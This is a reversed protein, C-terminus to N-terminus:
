ARNLIFRERYEAFDREIQERALGFDALTYEHPPRDERANQALWRRMATEASASLREGLFAYIRQIEGIPDRGVDRYGVDLFAEPWKERSRLCRELAWAYRAEVQRGVEHRDVEDAALEWLAAYMSAASAVTEIPDRHTQIVRAGPFVAFLVDIYGLHFPAKLVWREGAEGRKKKQWQLFQLQSKLYEYAPTLDQLDVYARYSPVHGSSEPVHSLFAHELLLIEEDAGVPDWPHIAAMVPSSALIMRVAERAEAIRPDERTPDSDPSPAPSRVEWWAATRAAPDCSLLRHLRTTGTRALGVIVLPASIEEELIEPHRRFYGVTRLRAVLSDVVRSHQIMRGIDHLEAETDLSHLLARLHPRFDDSGFDDLGAKDRAEALISAEDLASADPPLASTM